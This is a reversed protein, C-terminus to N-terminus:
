SKLDFVEKLHRIFINIKKSEILSDGGKTRGFNVTMVVLDNPVIQSGWIKSGQTIYIQYASGQHNVGMGNIIM